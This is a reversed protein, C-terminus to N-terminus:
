LGIEEFFKLEEKALFATNEDDIDKLTKLTFQQRNKLNYILRYCWAYPTLWPRGEIFKIYPINKMKSYSPFALRLKVALPNTNKGQELNDRAIKSSKNENLSGFAGNKLLYEQTKETNQIYAKGVGFWVSCVSLIEEFFRTLGLPALLIRVRDLDISCKKLMVALDLILKIGAGYFKFHHALHAILYAFHYNNDLMGTNGDFVANDFADCFANDAEPLMKTHLELIVSDRKYERVAGNPAYCEFGAKKLANDAKARNKEEILIDIDGMSRSEAVPYLERLVSGKFPIYRIGDSALCTGIDSLAASQLTYIYILDFFSNMFQQRANEGIPANKSGTFVCHCIGILNHNKALTYLKKMDIDGSLTLEEGNLYCRCINVLLKEENNM